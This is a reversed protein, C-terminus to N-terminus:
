RLGNSKNYFATRRSREWPVAFNQATTLAAMGHRLHRPLRGELVGVIDGVPELATDIPLRYRPLRRSSPPPAARAGADHPRHGRDTTAESRPKHSTSLTSM